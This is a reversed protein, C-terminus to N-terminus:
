TAHKEEIVHPELKGCLQVYMILGSPYKIYGVYGVDRPNKYPHFDVLENKSELQDYMEQPQM